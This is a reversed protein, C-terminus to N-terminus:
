DNGNNTEGEENRTDMELTLETHDIDTQYERVIRYLIDDIVIHSPAKKEYFSEEYEQAYMMAVYRPKIGVEYAKYYENYGVSKLTVFVETEKKIVVEDYGNENQETSYCILRAEIPSYM